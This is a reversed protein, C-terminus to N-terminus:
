NTSSRCRREFARALLVDPVRHALQMNGKGGQQGPREHDAEGHCREPKSSKANVRACSSTKQAGEAKEQKKRRHHPWRQNPFFATGEFGDDGDNDVSAAALREPLAWLLRVLGAGRQLFAE